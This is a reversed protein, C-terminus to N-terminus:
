SMNPGLIHLARDSQAKYTHLYFTALAWVEHGRSAMENVGHRSIQCSTLLNLVVVWLWSKIFSLANRPM